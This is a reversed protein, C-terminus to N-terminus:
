ALRLYQEITTNPGLARIARAQAVGVYRWHWPEFGIGTVKTLGDPYRLVFGYDQAHARLWRWERTNDFTSGRGSPSRLDVALGTQHESTGPVAVYRVTYARGYSALAHRYLAAQSAHSRFASVVYVRLGARRIATSLRVFAKAAAPTLPHSGSVKPRFGASVRHKASVVAIGNVTFPTGLQGGKRTDIPRTAPRLAENTQETPSASASPTRSGTPLTVPTAAASSASPTPRGTTSVPRGASADAGSHQVAVVAAAGAVATAVGAIVWRRVVPVLLVGLRQGTM